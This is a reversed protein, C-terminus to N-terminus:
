ATRRAGTTSLSSYSQCPPSEVDVDDATFCRRRAWPLVNEDDSLRCSETPFSASRRLSSCFLLTDNGASLCPVVASNYVTDTIVADPPPPPQPWFTRGYYGALAILSATILM